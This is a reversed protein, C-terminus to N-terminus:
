SKMKAVVLGGQLSKMSLMKASNEEEEAQQDAAHDIWKELADPLDDESLPPPRQAAPINENADVVCAFASLAHTLAFATATMVSNEAVFRPMTKNQLTAPKLRVNLSATFSSTLHLV